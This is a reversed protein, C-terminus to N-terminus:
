KKGIALTQMAMQRANRIIALNAEVTRSSAILDAMEEHVSVNPYKVMGTKQDADPHGPQYVLRFPRQDNEIGAVRVERVASNLNFQDEMITEFRVVQRQYPGGAPTSTTSANAINQSIVEMRVKEAQLASAASNAGPLINIDM